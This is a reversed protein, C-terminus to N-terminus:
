YSDVVRIGQSEILAEVTAQQGATLTDGYQLSQRAVEAWGSGGAGGVMVALDYSGDATVEIYTEPDILILVATLSAVDAAVVITGDAANFVTGLDMTTTMTLTEVSREYNREIGFEGKVVDSFGPRKTAILTM